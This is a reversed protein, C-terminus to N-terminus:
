TEIFTLTQCLQNEARLKVWAGRAEYTEYTEDRVAVGCRPAVAM